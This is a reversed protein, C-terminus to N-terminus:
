LYSIFLINCLCRFRWFINYTVYCSQRLNYEWGKTSVTNGAKCDTLIVQLRSKINFQANKTIRKGKLATTDVESYGGCERSYKEQKLDSLRMSDGQIVIEGKLMSKVGLAMAEEATYSATEGYGHVVQQLTVRLLKM